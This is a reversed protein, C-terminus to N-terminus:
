YELDDTVHLIGIWIINKNINHNNIIHSNDHIDLNFTNFNDNFCFFNDLM